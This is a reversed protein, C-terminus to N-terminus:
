FPLDCNRCIGNDDPRYDDCCDICHEITDRMRQSDREYEILRELQEQEILAHERRCMEEHEAEIEAICSACAGSADLKNYTHCIMCERIPHLFAKRQEPVVRTANTTACISCLETSHPKGLEHSCASCLGNAHTNTQEYCCACEGREPEPM